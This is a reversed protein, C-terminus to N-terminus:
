TVKQTRLTMVAGQPTGVVTKSWQGDESVGAQLMKKILRLVRKDAVRHEVFKMLWGHEINDYFGRIDADLVWSVKRQTIAVFIADLANHQSRNPRSGYSFGLFDEEYIVQLIEVLAQQVIKDELAAIGIPRQRGDSKPIWIRKSARARYRGSHIQDHLISLRKNLGEGYERWTVGDVGVSAKHNLARYAGHLRETDIHHLLNTFRLNKDRKAAERVRDLGSSASELGQTSTVTAQVLNGKASPSKEVFEALTQGSINPQEGNNMRKM